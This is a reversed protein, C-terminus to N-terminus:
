FHCDYTSPSPNANFWRLDHQLHRFAERLQRKIRNRVVAGGARRPVSLGLRPHGLENPLTYVVLPGAGRNVRAEYVAKFQQANKLRM